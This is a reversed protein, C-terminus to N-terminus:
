LIDCYGNRKQKSMWKPYLTMAHGTEQLTTGRQRRDFLRHCFLRDWKRHQHTECRRQNSVQKKWLRRQSDTQSMMWILVPTNQHGASRSRMTSLDISPSSIVTITNVLSCFRLVLWFCFGQCGERIHNHHATKYQTDYGQLHDKWKLSLIGLALQHSARDSFLRLLKSKSM